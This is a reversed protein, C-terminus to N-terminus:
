LWDEEVTEFVDEEVDEEDQSWEDIQYECDDDDDANLVDDDEYELGVDVQLLGDPVPYVCEEEKLVGLVVDVAM